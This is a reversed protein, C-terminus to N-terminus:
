GRNGAQVISEGVAAKIINEKTLTGGSLEASITGEYMILVRDCVHVLEEVDTSYMLICKGQRALGHIINFIEAKTGVDVGRTCDYLLLIAPDALLLKGFVVKQQNGGSLARVPLEANGTAIKLRQIIDSVVASERRRDLFGFRNLRHLIPLAINERISLNLLLGQTGRDEPVLAIGIEKRLSAKPSRIRVPRGRVLIEGSHPLVGFLAEFLADQGQGALGGIGVVEGAAVKLNVDRVRVGVTLHKTELVTVSSGHDGKEPFLGEVRRGLMLSVLEDTDTERMSRVGVDRGNRFITVRDAIERLEELRHSIFIVIKNQNALERCLKLLWEVRDQTLASTAEDLIVVNPDRSLVKVIEITQQQSLSLERVPQDCPIGEVGYASLLEEARRHLVRPLRLGYREVERRGYFLNSAVSLDPILSLEQYVTGVGAFIADRPSRLNIRKGQVSLTGADARLSGSLIKILTSKGAGNEGLIAHVEGGFASFNADTLAKVGGFAKCVGAMELTM